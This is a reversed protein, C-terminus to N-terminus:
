LGRIIYKDHENSFYVKSDIIKTEEDNLTFSSRSNDTPENYFKFYSGCKDCRGYDTPVLKLYSDGLFRTTEFTYIIRINHHTYWGGCKNKSAIFDDILKKFIKKIINM